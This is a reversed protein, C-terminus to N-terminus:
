RCASSGLRLISADKTAFAITADPTWDRRDTRSPDVWIWRVGARCLPAVTQSSPEDIFAWSDAERQQIAQIDSARGYPAQMHIDSIYTTLRTLAPVVASLTLNTAVLDDASAHSRLWDAAQAQTDTWGPFVWQDRTPLFAENPAFLVTSLSGEHPRAFPEAVAYVFRSPLSMSVLIVITFAVAVRLRSQQAQLSLAIGGVVALTVGVLPGAWRWGTGIMGTSGTAWVAAVIVSGILGLGIAALLRIRATAGLQEAAAALGSASLAALPAAAAVSFWLDNFGGSLVAITGLGGLAVGVGYTTEPNWRTRRDGVLWALGAWRPLAAVILIVIGAAIGKPTVVPNLGQVSSARDLLTFLRLGGANASGALLFTYTGILAALGVGGVALARWRWQARRAIGAIVVVAFGSAAVAATSVKGGTLAVVLVVVALLHWPLSVRHLAQMLVLSLALIWVAGMSQSPSDFNLVSGYTAGVFGGTVILLAAVSPAWWTRTLRATWAAALAVAAILTVLPLLRTLVVFPAADASLTLQGAWGYALSHYRIEAGSMFISALPGLRAVGVGLAEFFAMDGHYGTWLGTWSLPYSRIAVGFAVLGPAVGVALALLHPRALPALSAVPKGNGRVVVLWAAIAIVPALWWAWFLGTLMAGATGLGLGMGVAELVAVSRGPRLLRWWIAGGLGQVAVFGTLLAASAWSVGTLGMLGIVLAILAAVLPWPSRYAALAAFQRVTAIRERTAATGTPHLVRRRARHFQRVSDAWRVTSVGGEAFAAIVGDAHAPAAVRSLRLFVAYDAVISYGTEFGGVERLLDTRVVTGQHAPFRGRSFTTRQEAEYDWRPTVVRTGGAGVIEVEGYLWSPQREEAVSRVLGLAGDILEDGANLFYIYEGTATALGANMAPYIGSPEVWTVSGHLGTDALVTPIADRDRSSDIVLYEVGDLAQNSLSAVTREFGAADDKVVTVVTLWPSSNM